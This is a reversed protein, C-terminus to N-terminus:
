AKMLDGGEIVVGISLVYVRLLATALLFFKYPM